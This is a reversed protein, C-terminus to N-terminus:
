ESELLTVRPLSESNEALDRELQSVQERL